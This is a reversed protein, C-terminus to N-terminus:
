RVVIKKGNVIYLGPALLKLAGANANRLLTVGQLNSVTLCCAGDIDYPNRIGDTESSEINIEFELDNQSSTVTYIGENEVITVDADPTTCELAVNWGSQPTITWSLDGTYWINQPTLELPYTEGSVELTLYKEFAENPTGYISVTAKNYADLMKVTLQLTNFDFTLDVTGPTFNQLNSGDQTVTQLTTTFTQGNELDINIESPDGTVADMHGLFRTGKTVSEASTSLFFSFAQSAGYGDAPDFVAVPMLFDNLEYVGEEATPTLTGWIKTNRGGVNSGWLYINEPFTFTEVVQEMVLTGLVTGNQSDAGTYLKVTFKIDAEELDYAFSYVKFGSEQGKEIEYKRSLEGMTFPVNTVIPSNWPIVSGEEDVQYFWMYQINGDVKKAFNAVTLEYCETEANYTFKRDDDSPVFGGTSTHIFLPFVAEEDSILSAQRGALMTSAALSMAVVSM